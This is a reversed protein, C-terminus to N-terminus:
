TDRKYQEMFEKVKECEYSLTKFMDRASELKQDKGMTELQYAIDAARAAAMYGLSGKLKHAAEDLNLANKQEIASQIEVLTQTMNSLFEDFCEILLKKDGDLIEMVEAMDIPEQLDNM